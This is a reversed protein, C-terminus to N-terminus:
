LHQGDRQLLQLVRLRQALLLRHVLRNSIAGVGGNAATHALVLGHGNGDRALLSANLLGALQERDGELLLYMQFFFSSEIIYKNILFTNIKGSHTILLPPFEKKINGGESM